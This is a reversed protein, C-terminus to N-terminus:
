LSGAQRSSSTMGNRASPMVAPCLHMQMRSDSLGASTRVLSPRSTSRPRETCVPCSSSAVGASAYRRVPVNEMSPM